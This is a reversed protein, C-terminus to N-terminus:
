HIPIWKSEQRASQLCADLVKQTKLTIIGWSSDHKKSLVLQSFTRIMNTEQSNTGGNSYEPVAFHRPHSQMNFDCGVIELNPNDLEFVSENGYFPVVFDKLRISGRTGCIHAWQQNETTFSCYFSANVDGPFLLDASFELPVSKEPHNHDSGALLRGSVQTPLQYNMVWLALRINYWGLDGLCGLPELEQSVRINSEMFERAGLFSFHSTIRRIKGVAEPNDLVQKLLPLRNSHMFMVGDMFQVKHADCAKIIKSVEATDVGCPKECLVHKGAAAAKKVWEARIGTPLPIYVADVDKRALLEEYSGCAAPVEPLPAAAQCERIFQDAKGASRSAVAVLRSNGANRISKWNKRAILATGLIGWRCAPQAM